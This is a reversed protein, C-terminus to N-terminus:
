LVVHSKGSLIPPFSIALLCTTWFVDPMDMKDNILNEQPQLTCTVLLPYM